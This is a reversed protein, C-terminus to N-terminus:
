IRYFIVFKGISKFFLIKSKISTNQLIFFDINLDKTKNRLLTSNGEIIRTIRKDCAYENTSPKETIIYINYKGTNVLYNAAVTIFRAIGNAYLTSYVFAISIKQNYLTINKLLENNEKQNVKPLIAYDDDNSELLNPIILYKISTIFVIISIILIIILINMIIKDKNMSSIAIFNQNNREKEAQDINSNNVNLRKLEDEYNDIEVTIVTPDNNVEKNTNM